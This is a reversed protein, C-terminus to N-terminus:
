LIIKEKNKTVRSLFLYAYGVVFIAISTGASFMCYICIAEIVFLQLYILWLSTLLGAITVAAIWPLLDYRERDMVYFSSLLIFLYYLAGMLAVPIGIIVAYESTAVAECGGSSGCPPIVGRYHEFTLYSADLFGLFAVIIFFWVVFKNKM